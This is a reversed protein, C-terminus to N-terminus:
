RINRRLLIQQGRSCLLADYQASKNGRWHLLYHKLRNNTSLQTCFSGAFVSQMSPQCKKSISAGFIWSEFRKLSGSSIQSLGVFNWGRFAGFDVGTCMWFALFTSQLHEFPVKSSPGTALVWSKVGPHGGLSGRTVGLQQESPAWLSGFHALPLWFCVLAVWLDAFPGWHVGFPALILALFPRSFLSSFVHVIINKQLTFVHNNM